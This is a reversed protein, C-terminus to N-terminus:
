RGLGVVLWQGDIALREEGRWAPALPAPEGRGDPVLVSLERLTAEPGEAEPRSREVARARWAV